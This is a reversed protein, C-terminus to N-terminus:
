RGGVDVYGLARLREILEPDLDVAGPDSDPDQVLRRETGFRADLAAAYVAILDPRESALNTEEAPDTQRDFLETTLAGDLFIETYRWHADWVSKAWGEEDAGYEAFLLRPEMQEGQMLGTLSRGSMPDTSELGLLELLTPLVDVLSVPTSIRRGGERAEPLRIMLPVQLCEAYPLRHTFYVDHETMHEGHDAVVVVISRDLLGTSRLSDLATGVHNDVYSIGGAYQRVPYELDEIGELWRYRRRPDQGIRNRDSYIVDIRRAPDEPVQSPDGEYYMRDFEDPPEYPDHADFYHSLLFWPRDPPDKLARLLEPESARLRGNVLWDSYSRLDDFGRELGFPQNLYDVAVFATTAFGRARLREALTIMSDPLVSRTGGLTRHESPLLGTFMSAFAPLTWTSTSACDEFVIAETAFRDLAPTRVWDSGLTGVHDARFTDLALIVLNPPGRRLDVLGDFPEEPTPAGGCAALILAGALWLRRRVQTM